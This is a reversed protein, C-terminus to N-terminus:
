DILRALAGGSLSVLDGTGTLESAIRSALSWHAKVIELARRQAASRSVRPRLSRFERLDGERLVPNGRVASRASFHFDGRRKALWRAEAEVGAMLFVGEEEADYGGPASYGTYGSVSWTPEGFWPKRRQYNIRIFRLEWGFHLAVVAHGAEHYATAEWAEALRARIESTPSSM